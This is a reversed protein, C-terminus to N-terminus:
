SSSGMTKTKLFEALAAYSEDALRPNNMSVQKKLKEATYVPVPGPEVDLVAAPHTFVIVPKVPIPTGCVQSLHATFLKQLALATKTPDGLSEEVVSRFARGISMRERWRGDKCSFEGAINVTELIVVGNPTLLVHECPLAPYHHIVFKDDLGKLAKSLVEEPRPKRVWRNAFYIGIMSVVIGGLIALLAATQSLSQPLKPAVVPLVVGALLLLLGGISATNANRARKLVKNKDIVTKM